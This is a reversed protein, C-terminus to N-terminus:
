EAAGPPVDELPESALRAIARALAARYAELEREEARDEDPDGM